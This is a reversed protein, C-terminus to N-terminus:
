IISFINNEVQPYIKDIENQIEITLDIATVTRCFHQIDSFNLKTGMRYKLWSDLVQYGGIKYEWVEPNIGNFYQKEKNIYVRKEIPSYNRAKRKSNGIICSGSSLKSVTNELRNSKMTHLAILTEGYSCMINFISNDKTIPIRPYDTKLFQKYLDRYFNSYMVGYIYFVIKEPTISEGHIEKIIKYLESNINVQKEEYSSKNFLDKDIFNYTYLPFIYSQTTSEGSKAEMIGDCCFFHDMNESRNSRGTILAINDKLMHCMINERGWDVTHPSYYIYRLDFPKMLIRTFNSQWNDLRNVKKRAESMDWDRTDKLNYKERIFEDSLNLNRFNKIRRILSTKDTDVVFNNRYTIIGSVNIPFIDKISIFKYYFKELNHDRETFFYFKSQPKILQWKLNDLHTFIHNNSLWEFKKARKGFLDAKYIEKKLKHNKIFISIATGKKIDFVNEDDSGDPNNEHLDGHLNLVYIKDFTNLLSERMGSFTPNSLYKNNTIFAMVGQGTQEIKWQAFRIFKVYDDYLWHKKENFYEGDIYKYEEDIKKIIWDDDEFSSLKNYPPNGIIALIPIDKKIEGAEISEQSLSNMGLLNIQQIDKMDLTNTLFLKFRESDEMHYDYEELVLGAKLHGIAYPAILIEFAYFNKLLHNRIIEDKVGEGYKKICNELVLEFASLIFTLTGAAPDLVKVTNNILGDNINFYEKLINDVSNIIYDVIPKPTYYVGRMRKLEPNYASLFTEYFHIVPDSGMGESYYQNLIKNLDTAALVEVIDETIVQVIEPSDELFIFRFIDKLIGTNKPIDFFANRSNFNNIDTRLRSILLGYTITESYLDAFQERSINKLLSRKFVEYARYFQSTNESNGNLTKRVYDNLIKTKNALEIALSEADTVKPLLYSCFNGLLKIFNNQIKRLNRKILDIKEILTRDRYLRFEYFNTLIVNHFANFYRELQETKAIKNLDTGPIKAEICGITSINKNSVKFDPYGGKSKSPQVIIKINNKGSFALCENLLTELTSYYSDERTDDRSEIEEIRMLYKKLM